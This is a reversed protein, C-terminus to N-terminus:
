LALKYPFESKPDNAVRVEKLLNEYMGRCPTEM